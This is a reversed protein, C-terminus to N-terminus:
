IVQGLRLLRTWNSQTDMTLNDSRWWERAKDAGLPRNLVMVSEKPSETTFFNTMQNLLGGGLIRTWNQGNDISRYLSPHGVAKGIMEVSEGYNSMWVPMIVVEGDKYGLGGETKQEFKAKGPMPYYTPTAPENKNKKKLDVNIKEIESKVNKIEDNIEVVVANLEPDSALSYTGDSNKNFKIPLGNFLNRKQM